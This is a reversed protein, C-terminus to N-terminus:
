HLAIRWVQQFAGRVEDALPHRFFFVAGIFGLAASCAASLFPGWIHQPGIPMLVVVMLPGISSCIALAASKAVAGLIEIARVIGMKQMFTVSVAIRLTSSAIAAWGAVELNRWTLLVGVLLVVRAPVIIAQLVAFKGVSGTGQLVAWTMADLIGVMAAACLLRTIPVADDWQDGFLIRIVPFALLVAFCFFPWALATIHALSRLVFDRLDGGERHRLAVTSLAVPAFGELVGQSFLRILGAGRSYLGVAAPNIMAGIIVNPASRGVERLIQGVTSVVGFSTIRRWERFSPLLRGGAPHEFQAMVFTAVVGVLSSWAMAMFRYGLWALAIASASRCLTAALNIRYLAAFRMERRLLMIVIMTFPIFFFNLSLVLVVDRISPNNYLDAILGSCAALLAGITWAIAMAVGIASRQRSLTLEKEQVLYSGIGFERVAGALGAFSVAISFVGIDYPTLMRALALNTAIGIVLSSYKDLFSLFINKRM